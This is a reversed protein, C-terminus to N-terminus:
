NNQAGQTIWTEVTQIEKDKMPEKSHPMRISPDVKGSILRYFSSSLPDGAVIVPGYKTGKMLSEYTQTVFGSANAGAGGPLHCETCYQDILPKVDAKYSVAAPENSCGALLLTASVMTLLSLPKTKFM